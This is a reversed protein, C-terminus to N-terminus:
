LTVLITLSLYLFSLLVQIITLRFVVQPDSWSRKKRFHDHLPTLTNKLISIHLFRLLSVKILGLGGDLLLVLSFALYVFPRNCNLAIIAIFIGIARSGADGMMLRSPSINFWLYGLLCAILIVIMGLMTNGPLFRQYFIAFSVFTALSLTGCLGDVGDSCNTVNISVWVLVTALLLFLLPPIQITIGHLLQVVIQSGHFQYYANVTSVAIVLDIFGKLYEGWPTSSRDDLYGSIMACVVLIVYILHETNLPLFLLTIAAFIFIFVIGAGRPKGKSLSGNIAYQRGGDRPLKDMFLKLSIFTALFALLIGFLLLDTPNTRSFMLNIM